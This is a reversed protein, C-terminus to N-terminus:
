SAHTHSAIVVEDAALAKADGQLTNCVEQLLIEFKNRGLLASAWLMMIASAM